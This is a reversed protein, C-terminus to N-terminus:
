EPGLGMSTRWVDRILKDFKEIQAKRQNVVGQQYANLGNALTRILVENSSVFGPVEAKSAGGTSLKLALVEFKDPAPATIELDVGQDGLFDFLPKLPMAADELAAKRGPSMCDCLSLKGFKVQM